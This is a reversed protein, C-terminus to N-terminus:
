WPTTLGHFIYIKQRSLNKLSDIDGSTAKAAAKALFHGPGFTAWDYM